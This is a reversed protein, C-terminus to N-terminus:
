WIPELDPEDFARERMKRDLTIAHVLYNKAREVDGRQATCCALNFPITADGPLLPKVALLIAEAAELSQSHRM